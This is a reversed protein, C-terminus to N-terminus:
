VKINTDLPLGMWRLTDSSAKGWDIDESGSLSQCYGSFIKSSKCSFSRGVWFYLIRGEVNKFEPSPIVFIYVSDSDLDDATLHSIKELNPWKFVLPQMLNCPHGDVLGNLVVVEKEGSSHNEWVNCTSPLVDEFLSDTNVVNGSIRLSDNESSANAERHPELINEMQLSENGLSQLSENGLSSGYTVGIGDQKNFLFSSLTNKGQSDDLM